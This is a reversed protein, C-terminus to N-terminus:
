RAAREFWFVVIAWGPTVPAGDSAPKARTRDLADRIALILDDDYEDVVLLEVQASAHVRVLGRIRRQSVDRLVREPAQINLPEAFELPVRPLPTGENRLANVFIEEVAGDADVNAVARALAPPTIPKPAVPPAAAVAVPPPAVQPEPPPTPTTVPPPVVVDPEARPPSEAVIRVDLAAPRPVTLPASGVLGSLALLLLAHLLVSAVLAGTM